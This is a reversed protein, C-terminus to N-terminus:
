PLEASPRGRHVPDGSAAGRGTRELATGDRAPWEFGGTAHLIKGHPRQPSWLQNTRHDRRRPEPLCGERRAQLGHAPFGWLTSLETYSHPTLADLRKIYWPIEGWAFRLRLRLAIKGRPIRRNTEPRDGGMRPADSRSAGGCGRECRFRGAGAIESKNM